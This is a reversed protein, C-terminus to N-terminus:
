LLNVLGVFTATGLTVSLLTRRGCLLHIAVTVALALATYIASGPLGVVSGRFATVALIGLVGAPMWRSLDEVLASEQLTGLVAFPVARLAFTISFTIAMVALLYTTEPM